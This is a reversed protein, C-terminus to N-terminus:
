GQGKYRPELFMMLETGVRHKLSEEVLKRIADNGEVRQPIPSTLQQTESPLELSELVRSKASVVALPDEIQINGSEDRQVYTELEDISVSKMPRGPGRTSASKTNHEPSLAQLVTVKVKLDDSDMAAKRTSAALDENALKEYYSYVSDFAKDENRWVLLEEAAVGVEELTSLVQCHSRLFARLFRRKSESEALPKEAEALQDATLLLKVVSLDM